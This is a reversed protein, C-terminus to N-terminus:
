KKKSKYLHAYTGNEIATWYKLMFKWPDQAYDKEYDGPSTIGPLDYRFTESLIEDPDGYKAAVARTEPNDLAKIRGKEVITEWRETGRIRVRHTSLGNHVHCCHGGPAQNAQLFKAMRGEDGPADNLVQTGLAWHVVGSHDRETMHSARQLFAKPNTGYAGEYLFWYGKEGYYPWTTENLPPYDLFARLLDGYIGGNRVEKVRTNQIVIEIHPYVGAHSRTGALIGNVTMPLQPKEWTKLMPFAASPRLSTSGHPYLFLHGVQSGAGQGWLAAMQKDVTWTLESGEPDTYHAKDTFALPEIMREEVLRWVDAPFEQDLMAARYESYVFNGYLKPGHKRFRLYLWPRGGTGAYVADFPKKYQDLFAPDDGGWVAFNPDAAIVKKMKDSVPNAGKPMVGPTEKPIGYPNAGPGFL